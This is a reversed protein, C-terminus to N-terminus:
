CPDCIRFCWIRFGKNWRMTLCFNGCCIVRSRIFITGSSGRVRGRDLCDSRSSWPEKAPARQLRLQRRCRARSPRRGRRHHLLRRLRLLLSLRRLKTGSRNRLLLSRSIRPMRRLLRRLWPHAREGAREEADVVNEGGGCQVIRLRVQVQVRVRVEIGVGARAQSRLRWRCSRFAARRWYFIRRRKKRRGSRPRRVSWRLVHPRLVHRRLVRRRPVHRCRDNCQRVNPRRDNLRRENLRRDRLRRNFLRRARRTLRLRLRRNATPWSGASRARLISQSCPSLLMRGPRIRRRRAVRKAANSATM